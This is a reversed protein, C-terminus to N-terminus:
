AAGRKGKRDNAPETQQMGEIAAPNVESEALRSLTEDTQKEEALTEALLDALKTQGAAKALAVMTGYAAIEYHEVRQIGAVVLMDLVPGKEQEEIEQQAEELIGRMGECVKRGAKGGLMELAQDLREVQTETQEAHLQLAEKLAPSSVKKAMRPMVRLAQKEASYADRLQEIMLKNLDDM